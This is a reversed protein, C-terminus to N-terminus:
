GVALEARRAAVSEPKPTGAAIVDYIRLVSKAAHAAM